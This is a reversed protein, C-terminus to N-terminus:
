GAQSLAYVSTRSFQALVPSIGSIKSKRWVAQGGPDRRRLEWTLYRMLNRRGEEGKSSFRLLSHPHGHRTVCLHPPKTHGPCMSAAPCRCNQCPPRASDQSRNDLFGDRRRCATSGTQAKAVLGACRSQEHM